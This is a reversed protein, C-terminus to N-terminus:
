FFDSDSAPTPEIIRRIKKTLDKITFPKLIFDSVGMAKAEIALNEDLSSTLFFVPIDSIDRSEKIEKLISLGDRYPLVVDLLVLAPRHEWVGEIVGKGSPFHFVQYGEHSLTNLVIKAVTLNDEAFVIKYKIPPM